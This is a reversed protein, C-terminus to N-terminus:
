ARKRSQARQTARLLTENIRTQWGPGMSRFHTLIKADLRLKVPEKPQAMRPRGVPRGGESVVARALQAKTLEPADDYEHPQITHKDVRRLASRIGRNSKTM